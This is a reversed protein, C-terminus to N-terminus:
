NRAQLSSIGLIVCYLLFSHFLRRPFVPIEEAIGLNYCSMIKFARPVINVSQLKVIKASYM